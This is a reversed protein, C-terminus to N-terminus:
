SWGQWAGAAILAMVSLGIFWVLVRGPKEGTFEMYLGAAIIVVFLICGLAYAAGEIAASM